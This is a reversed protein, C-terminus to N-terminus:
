GTSQRTVARYEVAQRLGNVGCETKNCNQVGSGAILWEGACQRTVARYEVAQQLGNM